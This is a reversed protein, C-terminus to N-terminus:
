FRLERGWEGLCYLRVYKKLSLAMNAIANDYSNNKRFNKKEKQLKLGSPFCKQM